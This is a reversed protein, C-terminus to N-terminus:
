DDWQVALWVVQGIYNTSDHRWKFQSTTISGDVVNGIDRKAPNILTDNNTHSNINGGAEVVFVRIKSADDFVTSGSYTSFSVTIERTGQNSTTISTGSGINYSTVGSDVKFLRSWIKAVTDDTTNNLAGLDGLGQGLARQTAEIIDSIQNFVESAVYSEGSPLSHSDIADPYKSGLM